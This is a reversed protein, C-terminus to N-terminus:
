KARKLRIKSFVKLDSGTGSMVGSGSIRRLEVNLMLRRGQVQRDLVPLLGRRWQSMERRYVGKNIKV